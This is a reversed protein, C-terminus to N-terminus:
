LNGDLIAKMVKLMHDAKEPPITKVFDILAQTEPPIYSSATSINIDIDDVSTLLEQLTIGMGNALYKLRDISPMSQKRTSPNYEHELMSLYTHSIGNGCKEAFERLSLGHAKRYNKLYESLKM